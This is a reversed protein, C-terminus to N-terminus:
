FRFQVISVQIKEQKEIFQAEKLARYKAQLQKYAPSSALTLQYHYEMNKSKKFDIGYFM